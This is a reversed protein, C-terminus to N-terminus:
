TEQEHDDKEKGPKQARGTLARPLCQGVLGMVGIVHSSDMRVPGIVGLTGMPRRGVRYTATVVSYDRLDPDPNESGITVALERQTRKSLLRYFRERSEMMQLFDRAREMEWYEPHRFINVMGELYFDGQDAQVVSDELADSLRDFFEPSRRRAERLSEELVLNIDAVAHGAFRETLLRSLAQLEEETMDEPIRIIIDKVVTTDTVLVVLASGKTLWVLQIRVLRARRMQPALVMATYHTWESMVAAAHRMLQDTEVGKIDALSCIARFESEELDPEQM